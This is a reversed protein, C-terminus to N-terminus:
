GKVQGSRMKKRGPHTSNLKGGAVHNINVAGSFSEFDWSRGGATLMMEGRYIRRWEEGEGKEEWKRSNLHSAAREGLDKVWKVWIWTTLAAAEGASREKDAREDRKLSVRRQTAQPIATSRHSTKDVSFTSQQPRQMTAAYVRKAKRCPTYQTKRVM